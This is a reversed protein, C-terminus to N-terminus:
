VRYVEIGQAAMQRVAEEPFGCDTILCDIDSLPGVRAFARTPYKSSDALLVVYDAASVMAAKVRAVELSVDSLGAEPEFAQIGLFLKDVLLERIDREALPGVTSITETSLSGGALMVHVGPRSGIETAINLSNTIITLPSVIPIRKAMEMLTTGADLIVTAGSIVMRAAAEGIRRKSELNLMARQSFAISLPTHTQVVAGGHDRVLIGKQALAELDNRITVDSVGFLKVLEPVRVVGHAEVLESIKRRRAIM